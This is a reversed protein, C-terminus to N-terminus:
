EQLEFEICGRAVGNVVVTLRHLGPYHKRTTLDRFWHNREIMRGGPPMDAESIKFRKASTGGRAKVYVVDYELRVRATEQGENRLKFSFGLADGIRISSSSLELMGVKVAVNEGTGFLDLADGNGKKLLTRCGHKVVRDTEPSLGKWRKAIGLVLDPHDKSIDNLNNAVSKRVYDSSDNRLRELIPLIDAPDRQLDPLAVAWPLRPRCGESALRRVHHDAHESWMSMQSMMRGRDKIIFPRVAFESSSAATFRELAEMSLEWHEMGYVEVYDPFFLYALGRCEQTVAQLIRIGSEYDPLTEGLALTVTRMREKLAKGEWYDDIVSDMFEKISFRPYEREVLRAFRELLQKSYVNKLLEAM